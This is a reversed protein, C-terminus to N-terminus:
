MNRVVSQWADEIGAVPLDEAVRASGIRNLVVYRVRGGRAKKDGAALRQLEEAKLGLARDPLGLQKVLARVRAELGKGSLRAAACVGIAVAEGHLYKRFGTAAEIAHGFTHGLNLLMRPGSEREDGAVVRAKHSACKVVIKELLAPRRVLIDGANKELLSFLGADGILGYKVVEALGARFERDPLTKLTELDAIVARPQHFAGVLNKGQPLNIGTKGGISADVMALLTTPVQVLDIGRNWTAAAFGALDGVVGGGVAVVVADRGAQAQALAAWLRALQGAQKTSEGAPVEISHVAFGATELSAAVVRGYRPATNADAVVLAVATRGLTSRFRRGISALTGRGVFVPYSREGLRVTITPM